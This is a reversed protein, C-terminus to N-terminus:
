EGVEMLRVQFLSKLEEYDDPANSKLSNLYIVNLDEMARLCEVPTCLFWEGFGNRDIFRQHMAREFKRMEMVRFLLAPRLHGNELRNLESFRRKFDATAGIKMLDNHPNHVCYIFGDGALKDHYEYESM